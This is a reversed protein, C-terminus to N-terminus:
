WSNERIYIDDYGLWKIANILAKYTGVYPMIKDHELIMHKSKPNLIRWDPLDENIDIEKFLASFDKPNFDIRATEHHAAPFIDSIELPILGLHPEYLCIQISDIDKLKKKLSLYQQSLYAPKTNTEEMILLAKKKSKFNRVMKHYAQVEPRNSFDSSETSIVETVTWFGSRKITFDKLLVNESKYVVLDVQDNALVGPFRKTIGKAELVIPQDRKSM